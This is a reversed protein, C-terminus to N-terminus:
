YGFIDNQTCMIGVQRRKRRAEEKKQNRVKRPSTLAKAKEILQGTNNRYVLNRAKTRMRHAVDTLYQTKCVPLKKYEMVEAVVSKVTLNYTYDTDSYHGLWRSLVCAEISNLDAGFLIRARKTTNLRAIQLKIFEPKSHIIAIQSLFYKQESSLDGGIVTERELYRLMKVTLGYEIALSKHNM